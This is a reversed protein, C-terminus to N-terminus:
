VLLFKLSLFLAILCFFLIILKNKNNAQEIIPTLYTSSLLWGLGSSFVILVFFAINHLM